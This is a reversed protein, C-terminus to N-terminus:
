FERVADIKADFLDDSVNCVLALEGIAEMIDEADATDFPHQHAEDLRNFAQVLAILRKTAKPVTAGQLELVAERVLAEAERELARPHVERWAKFFRRTKLSAPGARVLTEQRTRHAAVAALLAHSRESEARADEALVADREHDWRWQARVDRLLLSWQGLSLVKQAVAGNKKPMALWTKPHLVRSVYAASPARIGLPRLEKPASQRVWYGLLPRNWAHHDLAQLTLSAPLKARRLPARASTTTMVVCATGEEVALTWLLVEVEPTVSFALLAGPRPLTM